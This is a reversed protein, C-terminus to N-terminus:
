WMSGQLQAEHALRMWQEAIKLWMAKDEPRSAKEAQRRADEAHKRYDGAQSMFREVSHGSAPKLMAAVDAMEWHAGIFGAFPSTAPGKREQLSCNQETKGKTYAYSGRHLLPTVQRRINVAAL